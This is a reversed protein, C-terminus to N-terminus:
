VSYVENIYGELSKLRFKIQFINKLHNIFIYNIQMAVKKDIKLDEIHNAIEPLMKLLDSSRSNIDITSDYLHEHNCNECIFGNKQPYFSAFTTTESNCIVCKRLNLGIGYIKMVSVMFRWFITIHRYKKQYKLYNSLLEFLQITDHESIIMQRITELAGYFLMIDPYGIEFFSAKELFGNKFIFFDNQPNKYANIKLENGIEFLGTTKNQNNRVGKAILSIKGHEKTLLELILSTDRYIIKKLVIGRLNLYRNRDM